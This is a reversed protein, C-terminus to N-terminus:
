CLFVKGQFLALSSGALWAGCHMVCHTTYYEESTSGAILWEWTGPTEKPQLLQSVDPILFHSSSSSQQFGLADSASASPVGALATEPVDNKKLPCHPVPVAAWLATSAGDM